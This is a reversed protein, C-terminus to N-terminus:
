MVFMKPQAWPLTQPINTPNAIGCSHLALSSLTHWYLTHNQTQDEFFRSVLGLHKSAICVIICSCGTTLVTSDRLTWKEAIEVFHGAKMSHPGKAPHRNKTPSISLNWFFDGSELSPGPKTPIHRNRRQLREFNGHELSHILTYM